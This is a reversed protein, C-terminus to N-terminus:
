VPESKRADELGKGGNGKESGGEEFLVWLERRKEVLENEDDKM